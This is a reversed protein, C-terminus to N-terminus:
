RCENSSFLVRTIAPESLTRRPGIKEGSPFDSAKEAPPLNLFTESAPPSGSIRQAVGEKQADSVYKEWLSEQASVDAPWLGLGFIGIWLWFTKRSM